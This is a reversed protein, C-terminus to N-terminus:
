MKWWLCTCLRNKCQWWPWTCVNNQAQCGHFTGVQLTHVPQQGKFTMPLSQQSVLISYQDRTTRGFHRHTRCITDFYTSSFSSLSYRSYTLANIRRIPRRVLGQSTYYIMILGSFSCHSYKCPWRVSAM